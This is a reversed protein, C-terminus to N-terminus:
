ASRGALPRRILDIVFRLDSPSVVREIAVYVAGYVALSVAGAVLPAGALAACAVGMAAGAGLTAPLMARWPLPDIARRAVRLALVVFVAETVLMAVAAGSDEFPPILALNLCVNLVTMSGTLWVLAMPGERSVILSSAVSVISILVVIPALFRLPDGASAFDAGFVLRCIPAALLAFLLACPVLVAIAAKVARAFADSLTPESDRGLYVFMPAFAGVLAWTFVFSSEFLRYAAGYRGVAANSALISLLVTDIRFLLVGFVSEMGFPVSRRALASWTRRDLSWRPFGIRVGLLAAGVVLGIAAAATYTVAIAVVGFGAALAALGLVAAAIRQVLVTAALLGGHEFSEFVGLVTRGVVELIVGGTLVYVTARTTADYDLVSVLGISAAAFPLALVAKFALIDYLFEGLREPRGAVQRLMYRDFGLGVPMTAIQVFALGFVFAGLGSQGLERAMAGFLVLSAVRSLVDGSARVLTNRAARRGAQEAGPASM